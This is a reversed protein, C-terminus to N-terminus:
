EDDKMPLKEGEWTKWEMGKPATREKEYDTKSVEDWNTSLVTGGSTQYSKIMARRTEESADAYIKQFLKNMADEGEAKDNKEEKEINKEIADWDRHSVYPRTKPDRVLPTDKVPSGGDPQTPEPKSTEDDDAKGFLEYWEFSDVKRLKILVKEDKIQVKSKEVDIKAYLHNAIVTFDVGGKRLIVTLRKPQFRVQVDQQQVNAELISITMFKDNQWFQYKPMAPRRSTTATIQSRTPQSPTPAHFSDSAAPTASKSPAPQKADFDLTRGPAPSSKMASAQAENPSLNEDCQRIWEMYESDPRKNLSALQAAKLLAEKAPTYRQLKFAALGSRKHCIEGEGPRIGSPGKSLLELAANADELAEEYRGLQYFASSRHSLIRIQITVESERVVSLGAAYADLADTYNEDVYYSDALSLSEGATMDHSCNTTDLEETMTHGAVIQTFSDISLRITAAFSKNEDM